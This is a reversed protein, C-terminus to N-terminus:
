QTLQPTETIIPRVNDVEIVNIKYQFWLQLHFTTVRTEHM